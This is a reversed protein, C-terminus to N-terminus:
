SGLNLVISRSYPQLFIQPISDILLYLFSSPFSSYRLQPTKISVPSDSAEKEHYGHYAQM